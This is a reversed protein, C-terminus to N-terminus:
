SLAARLISLCNTRHGILRERRGTGGTGVPAARGRRAHQDDIVAGIDAEEPTHCEREGPKDDTFCRITHFRERFRDCIVGIHDEHIQAHRNHASDLSRARQFTVDM